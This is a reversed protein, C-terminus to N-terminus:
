RLWLCVGINLSFLYSPVDNSVFQFILIKTQVVLDGVVDDGDAM